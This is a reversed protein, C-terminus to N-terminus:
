LKGAYHLTTRAGLQIVADTTLAAVGLVLLGAIMLDAQYALQSISIRYGLGSSAGVLESVYLMVFATGASLRIGPVTAPFTAPLIITLAYKWRSLNLDRALESYQTDAIKAGQLTTVVIPFICVFISALLKSSWDIGFWLIFLPLLAVPPLSRLFHIAGELLNRLLGILAFSLGIAIGVPAAIVLSLWARPLSELADKRLDQQAWQAFATWVNALPPLLGPNNAIRTFLEWSAALMLGGAVGYAVKLLTDRM